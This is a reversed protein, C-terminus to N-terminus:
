IVNRNGSTKETSNKSSISFTTLKSLKVTVHKVKVEPLSSSNNHRKSSIEQSTNRVNVIIDKFMFFLFSM